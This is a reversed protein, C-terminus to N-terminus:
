VRVTMVLGVASIHWLPHFLEFTADEFRSLSYATNAGILLHLCSMTDANKLVYDLAEAGGAFSVGPENPQFFLNPIKPQRHYHWLTLCIGLAVLAFALKWRHRRM